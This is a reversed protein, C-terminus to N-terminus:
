RSTTSRGATSSAGSTAVPAPLTVRSRAAINEGPTARSTMSREPGNSITEARLLAVPSVMVRRRMLSASKAAATDRPRRGSGTSDPPGAAGAGAAAAAAGPKSSGDPINAWRAPVAAAGAGAGSAVGASFSGSAAVAGVSTAAAVGSSGSAAGGVRARALPTFGREPPLGSTTM